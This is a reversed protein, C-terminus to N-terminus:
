HSWALKIGSNIIPQIPWDICFHVDWLNQNLYNRAHSEIFYLVNIMLLWCWKLYHTFGSQSHNRGFQQAWRGFGFNPRVSNRRMEVTYREFVHTYTKEALLNENAVSSNLSVPVMDKWWNGATPKKRLNIPSVGPPRLASLGRHCDNTSVASLQIISHGPPDVRNVALLQRDIRSVFTILLSAM